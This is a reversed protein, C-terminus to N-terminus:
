SLMGTHEIGSTLRIFMPKAYAPLDAKLQDGLKKIDVNLVTLTAMGAKGEQGLYFNNFM